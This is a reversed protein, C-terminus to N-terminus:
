SEAVEGGGVVGVHHSGRSLVYTAMVGVVLVLAKQQNGMQSEVVVADQSGVAVVREEGCNAMSLDTGHKNCLVRSLTISSAHHLLRTKVGIM